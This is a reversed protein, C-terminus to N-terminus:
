DDKNRREENESHTIFLSPSFRQGFLPLLFVTSIIYPPDLSYLPHIPPIKKRQHNLTCVIKCICAAPQDHDILLRPIRLSIRGQYLIHVISFPAESCLQVNMELKPQASKNEFHRKTDYAQPHRDSRTPNNGAKKMPIPPIYSSNPPKYFM